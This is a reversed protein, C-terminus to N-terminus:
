HIVAYPNMSTIINLNLAVLKGPDPPVTNEVMADGQFFPHLLCEDYAVCETVAAPVAYFGSLLFAIRMVPIYTATLRRYGAIDEVINSLCGRNKQYFVNMLDGKLAIGEVIDFSTYYIQIEEVFARAPIRRNGIGRNNFAHWPVPCHDSVASLM